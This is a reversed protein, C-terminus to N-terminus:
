ALVHLPNAPSMIAPGFISPRSEQRLAWFTKGRKAGNRRYSREGSRPIGNRLVVTVADIRHIVGVLAPLALGEHAEVLGVGWGVQVFDVRQHRPISPFAGLLKCQHHQAEVPFEAIRHEDLDCTLKYVPSYQTPFM